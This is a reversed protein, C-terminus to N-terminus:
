LETLTTLLKLISLLVATLLRLSLYGVTYLAKLDVRNFV